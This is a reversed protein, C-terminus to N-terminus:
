SSSEKSSSPKSIANGLYKFGFPPLTIRISNNETTTTTKDLLDIWSTPSIPRIQSIPIAVSQETGSRNMAFIVADKGEVRAFATVNKADDTLLPIPDGNHLVKTERRLRVLKKYLELVDNQPTALAWQMGKRNMPDAGGEMGLEEGYYISPAGAWAFQVAAGLKALRRDGGALTIFRPTDHSSLLNMQNRSVQPPYWSYVNMLAAMFQSATTKGEAVHRLVADRFPYNMSADWMDGGLWKRADGWVEGVIWAERDIGKVRKRFDQWFFDPVENAVDLRWGSLTSNKHWFDVSKMLYNYAGKNKLNIKPMSEYGFWAEYPPTNRVEVPYSKVFFWDKYTSKEQNKLLDVFPPFTVGVHDFIQDLVTRIGAKHLAATLDKFEANTGFEPDIQYFDAPDYRHNSPAKMVPNFYVANVGLNKLHGIRQNVGAIDGGFRNWYKPEADWAEMEKPDNASSGNAFRDPFIQYFVTGEVWKPVEFPKFEGPKLTFRNSASPATIGKSGYIWTKDGDILQFGYSFPKTKNFPLSARWTEEIEDSSLKQMAVTDNGSVVSVKQVDGPRILLTLSIRGKDVNLDPIRQVHRVAGGTIKGDGAKAPESYDAPVVLLVSNLNGNGDDENRIAKPDTVWNEGDLVFKYTHKGTPLGLSATWTRGDTGVKMPNADKNWGNFTGAVSARKLDRDASYTFTVPKLNPQVLILAFVLTTM